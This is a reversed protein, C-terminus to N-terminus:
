CNPTPPLPRRNVPTTPPQESFFAEPNRPPPPSPPTDTPAPVMILEIKLDGLFAIM